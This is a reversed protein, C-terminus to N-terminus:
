LAILKICKLSSIATHAIFSFFEVVDPASAVPKSLNTYQKGESIDAASVSFALVMSALALWIKENRM